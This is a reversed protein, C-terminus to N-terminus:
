SSFGSLVHIYLTCHDSLKLIFARSPYSSLLSLTLKRLLYRSLFCPPSLIYISVYEDRIYMLDSVNQLFLNIFLLSLICSCVTHHSQLNLLSLFINSAVKRCLKAWFLFCKNSSAFLLSVQVLILVVGLIFSQMASLRCTFCLLM